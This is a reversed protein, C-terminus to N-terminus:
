PSPPKIGARAAADVNMGPFSNSAALRVNMEENTLAAIMTNSNFGAKAAAEPAIKLLANTAFLRVFFAQDELAKALAMTVTSDGTGVKGLAGAAFERVYVDHDKLAEALATIVSSDGKGINGLAQAALMRVARDEDRKLAGVLMPTAPEAMPGMQSLISLANVRIDINDGPRPLHSRLMPPLRFWVQTRYYAAGYWSDKRSARILFPVAKSNTLLGLPWSSENSNTVLNLPRVINLRVTGNTLWHGISHGEYVPERAEWPSWWVLGGLAAVLLMVGVLYRRNKM